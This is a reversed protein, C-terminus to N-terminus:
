KEREPESVILDSQVFLEYCKCKCVRDRRVIGQLSFLTSFMESIPQITSPSRPKRTNTTRISLPTFNPIPSLVTETPDTSLRKISSFASSSSRFFSKLNADWTSSERFPSKLRITLFMSSAIDLMLGFARQSNVDIRSTSM